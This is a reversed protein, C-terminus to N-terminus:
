RAPDADPFRKTPSHPSNNRTQRRTLRRQALRQEHGRILSNDTGPTEQNAQPTMYDEEIGIRGSLRSPAEATKERDRPSEEAPSERLFCSRVPPGGEGDAVEDLEPLLRRRVSEGEDDSELASTRSDTSLAPSPEPPRPASPPINQLLASERPLAAVQIRPAVTPPAPQKPLISAAPAVRASLPPLSRSALLRSLAVGGGLVVGEGVLGMAVLAGTGVQRERAWYISLAVLATGMVLEMLVMLRHGTRTPVWQVESGGCCKKIDSM